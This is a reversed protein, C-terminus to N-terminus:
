LNLLATNLRSFTTEITNFLAQVNLSNVTSAYAQPDSGLTSLNTLVSAASTAAAEAVSAQPGAQSPFDIGRLTSVYAQLDSAFAADNSALCQTEVTADQGTCAKGAAEFSSAQGNLTNYATVAQNQAVVAQVSTVGANGGIAALLAVYGAIGLAGVVFFAVVMKRAGSSLVLHWSSEPRAAVAAPGPWPPAPAGPVPAYPTAPIGAGTTDPVPAAGEGPLYPPPPLPAVPPPPAPAVVPPPAPATAEGGGAFPSVPNATPPGAVVSEPLAEDGMVQAPYLSTLMYFYGTLRYQFRLAAANAEFLVRPPAGTVLTAVWTVIWFIGAGVALLAVALGAPLALFYRFLVSWRNLRGTRVTLDVPYDSTSRLSFPPYRDTLLFSYADVRARWRLYGTVFEAFPDPFRGTFLAAFWGIFILVTAAINLFYLVVYQPIALIPRFFVTVRRQREPQGFAMEVPSSTESPVPVPRVVVM